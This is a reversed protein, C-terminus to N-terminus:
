SRQGSSQPILLTLHRTKPGEETEDKEKGAPPVSHGHALRHRLLLDLTQRRHQSPQRLFLSFPILNELHVHDPVILAIIRLLKCILNESFKLYM